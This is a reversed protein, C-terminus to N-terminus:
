RVARPRRHHAPHGLEVVLVVECVGVVVAMVHAISECQHNLLQTLQRRCNGLSLRGLLGGLFESINEDQSQSIRQRHLHVQLGDEVLLHISDHLAFRASSVEANTDRFVGIIFSLSRVQASRVWLLSAM